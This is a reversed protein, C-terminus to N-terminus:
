FIRDCWPPLHWGFLRDARQAAGVVGEEVRGAAVLTAFSVGALYTAGLDAAALRLHPAGSTSRCEAKGASVTLRYRGQNWPCFSDNVEIVLEGDGAYTRAQLAPAVQVLRLWLGEDTRRRIAGRDAFM